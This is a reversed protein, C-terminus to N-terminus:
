SPQGAPREPMRGLQLLRRAILIDWVWLIVVSFISIFVGAVPVFLGFALVNAVIGLWATTKSFLDSRLMVISIIVLAASGFVYSVQFAAGNYIALMTEGAALLAARQADSTAAAYRDSLSAMTLTAERSSLFLGISLFGLVTAIAMWPANTRKLAVYFALFLAISLVNDVMLLLDLDLLGLLKNHQFLIFYDAVASPPPSAIFVAIQIPVLIVMILAAAGGLTYIGRWREDATKLNSENM